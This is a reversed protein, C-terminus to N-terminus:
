TSAASEPPSTVTVVTAHGIKSDIDIAGATADFRVLLSGL